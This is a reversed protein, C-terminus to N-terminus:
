NRTLDLSKFKSKACTPHFSLNNLTQPSSSSLSLQHRALSWCSSTLRLGITFCCTHLTYLLQFLCIQVDTCFHLPAVKTFYNMSSQTSQAISQLPNSPWAYKLISFCLHVVALSLVIPHRNLLHM